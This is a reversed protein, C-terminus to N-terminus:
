DGVEPCIITKPLVWDPVPIVINTRLVPVAGGGVVGGVTAGVLEGVAGGAVGLEVVDVGAVLSVGPLVPPLADGEVDAGLEGVAGAVVVGGVALGVGFAVAVALM